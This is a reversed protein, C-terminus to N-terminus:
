ARQTCIEVFPAWRSITTGDNNAITAGNSVPRIKPTGHISPRSVPPSLQPNTSAMNMALAPPAHSLALFYTSSPLKPPLPPSTCLAVTTPSVTPSGNLSVDPGLRLMSILSILMTAMTIAPRVTEHLRSHDPKYLVYVFLRGQMM